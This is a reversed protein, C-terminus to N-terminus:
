VLSFISVRRIRRADVREKERLSKVLARTIDAPEPLERAVGRRPEPLISRLWFDAMTGYVRSARARAIGVSDRYNGRTEEQGHTCPRRPFQTLVMEGKGEDHAIRRVRTRTKQGSTEEEEEGRQQAGRIYVRRERM